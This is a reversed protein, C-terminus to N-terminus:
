ARVSIFQTFCRIDDPSAGFYDNDELHQRTAEDTAFSNM